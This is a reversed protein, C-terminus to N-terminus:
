KFNGSYVVRSDIRVFSRTAALSPLMDNWRDYLTDRPYCVPWFKQKKKKHHILCVLWDAAGVCKRACVLRIAYVNCVCLM